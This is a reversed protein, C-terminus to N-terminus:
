KSLHDFMVHTNHHTHSSPFPYRLLLSAPSSSTVVNMIGLKAECGSRHCFLVSSMQIVPM